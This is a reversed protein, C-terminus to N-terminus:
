FKPINEQVDCISLGDPCDTRRNSDRRLLKMSSSLTPITRCPTSYEIVLVCPEDRTFDTFNM